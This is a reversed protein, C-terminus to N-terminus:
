PKERRIGQLDEASMKFAASAAASLNCLDHFWHRAVRIADAEDYDSVFVDRTTEMLIRSGVIGKHGMLGIRVRVARGLREHEIIEVSLVQVDTETYGAM